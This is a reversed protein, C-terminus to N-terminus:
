ARPPWSWHFQKPEESYPGTALEPLMNPFCVTLSVSDEHIDTVIAAYPGVGQYDYWHVIRGITPEM